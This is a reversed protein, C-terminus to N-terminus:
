DILFEIIEKNRSYFFYVMKNDFLIAPVPGLIDILRLQEKLATIQEINKVAYCLHHYHTGSNKQLFNYTFATESLPEILEIYSGGGIAYLALKANQVPDIVEKLKQSFVINKEYKEISKVVYGVHHLVLNM